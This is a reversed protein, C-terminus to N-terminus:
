HEVLEPLPEVDPETWLLIAQPLTYYLFGAAILFGYPLHRVFTQITPNWLPFYRNNKLAVALLSPLLALDWWWYALFYAHDRRIMEREDGEFFSPILGSRYGRGGFYRVALIMLAALVLNAYGLLAAGIFVALVSYVGIVFQRRRAQSAM